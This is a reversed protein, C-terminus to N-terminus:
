KSRSSQVSNFYSSSSKNKHTIKGLSWGIISCNLLAILAAQTPLKALEM